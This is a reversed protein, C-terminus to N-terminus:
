LLNELLLNEINSKLAARGCNFGNVMVVVVHTPMDYENLMYGAYCQVGNVSGTKAVLRGELDTGKLFSRLTGSVGAVPFMSIYENIYPSNDLMWVLVDALVYPSITNLRSLGSGDNITMSGVDIGNDAWTLTEVDLAEARSGAPALLRLSAEAMLNDSRLMMSKLINIVSPSRHVYLTCGGEKSEGMDKGNVEIGRSKLALRFAHAFSSEPSPNAISTRVRQRRGSCVTVTMADPKRSVLPVGRRKNVRSIKLGPVEPETTASPMSLLVRNDKYNLAHYGAGYPWVADSDKWGSPITFDSMSSPDVIIQGTVKRVGMNVITSAVSDAVGAYDPFYNSELTPDGSPIIRINGNLVGDVIPGDAVFLTHYRYATDVHQLVTAATVLKTVSAPTMPLEGNVDLLVEGTVLDEIYVGVTSADINPIDSRYVEQGITSFGVFLFLLLLKYPLTSMKYKM